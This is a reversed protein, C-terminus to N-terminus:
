NHERIDLKEKENQYRIFNKVTEDETEITFTAEKNPVHMFSKFHSFMSAEMLKDSIENREEETVFEFITQKGIYCSVEKTKDELRNPTGQPKKKIEKGDISHTEVLLPSIEEKTKVKVGSAVLVKAANIDHQEFCRSCVKM